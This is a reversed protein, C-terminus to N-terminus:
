GTVDERAAPDSDRGCLRAAEAILSDDGPQPDEPGLGEGALAADLRLILSAEQETV